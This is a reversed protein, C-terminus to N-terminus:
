SGPSIFKFKEMFFSEVQVLGVKEQVGAKIADYSEGMSSMMAAGKEAYPQLLSYITVVFLHLVVGCNYMM